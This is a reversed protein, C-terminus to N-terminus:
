RLSSRRTPYRPDPTRDAPTDKGSGWRRLVPTRHTLRRLLRDVIELRRQAEPADVQFNGACTRCTRMPKRRLEFLPECIAEGCLPCTLEVTRYEVAPNM